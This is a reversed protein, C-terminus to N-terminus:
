GSPRPVGHARCMLAAASFAALSIPLLRLMVSQPKSSPFRGSALLPHEEYEVIPLSALFQWLGGPMASTQGTGEQGSVWGASPARLLTPHPRCLLRPELGATQGHSDRCRESGPSRRQWDHLLVPCVRRAGLFPQAGLLVVLRSACNCSQGLQQQRREGKMFLGALNKKLCLFHLLSLPRPALHPHPSEGWLACIAGRLSNPVQWGWM